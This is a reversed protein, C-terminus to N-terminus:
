NCIKEINKASGDSKAKAINNLICKAPKSWEPNSSQLYDCAWVILRAAQNNKESAKTINKLVCKAPESWDPNSSQVHGCAIEIEHSARDNDIELFNELMCKKKKEDYDDASTLSPTLFFILGVVLLLKKM